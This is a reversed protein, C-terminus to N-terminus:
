RDLEAILEPHITEQPLHSFKCAEPFGTLRHFEGSEKYKFLGVDTM